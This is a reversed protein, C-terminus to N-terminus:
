QHQKEDAFSVKQKKVNSDSKQVTDNTVSEALVKAIGEEDEAQM